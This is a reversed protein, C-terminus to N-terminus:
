KDNKAAEAPPTAPPAPLITFGLDSKGDKEFLVIVRGDPLVGAERYGGVGGLFVVGHRLPCLGTVLTVHQPLTWGCNVLSEEFLVGQAALRDMTPSLRKKHGYAHVHDRRLTDFSILIVNFPGEASPRRKNASAM